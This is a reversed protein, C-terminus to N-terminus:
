EEDRRVENLYRSADGLVSFRDRTFMWSPRVWGHELDLEPERTTREELRIYAVAEQGESLPDTAHWKANLKRQGQDPFEQSSAAAGLRGDPWRWIRLEEMEAADTLMQVKELAAYLGGKANHRLVSPLTIEGQMDM